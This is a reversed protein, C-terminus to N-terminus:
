APYTTGKWGARRLGDQLHQRDSHRMYLKLQPYTEIFDPRLALCQKLARVAEKRQGSHGLAAALVFYPYPNDPKRACAQRSIDVAQEYDRNNLHAEALFGLYAFNRVDTPNLKIAM